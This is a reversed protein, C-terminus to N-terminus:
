WSVGPINQGKKAFWTEKALHFNIWKTEETRSGIKINDANGESLKVGGGKDNQMSRLVLKVGM